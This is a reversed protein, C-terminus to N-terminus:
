WWGHITDYHSISNFTLMIKVINYDRCNAYPKLDAVVGVYVLM